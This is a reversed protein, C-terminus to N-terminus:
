RGQRMRQIGVLVSGMAAWATLATIALKTVDVIPKVQVGDPGIIITAVPRANSGGGGGGGGGAGSATASDRDAPGIGRGFGFGGGAMVESATIVTYSGQQIPESYVASTHAAGFLKELVTLSRQEGEQFMRVLENPQDAM